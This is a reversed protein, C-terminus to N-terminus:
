SLCLTAPKENKNISYLWQKLAQNFLKSSFATSQKYSNIEMPVPSQQNPEQKQPFYCIRALSDNDLTVNKEATFLIWYFM